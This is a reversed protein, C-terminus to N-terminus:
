FLKIWKNPIKGTDGCHYVKHIIQNFNKKLKLNSNKIVQENEKIM